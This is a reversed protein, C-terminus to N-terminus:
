FCWSVITYREGQTVPAVSHVIDARFAVLLGREGVLPFGLSDARSGDMLGFFTLRGGGFSDLEPEASEGNLFIVMSVRRQAVYDPGETERDAHPQFYDGVRYRLFQPAQCGNLPVKFHNGITPLLKLLRAHVLSKTKESVQASVSKRYAQDIADSTEDAVTSPREPVSAIERRLKDCFESDFFNRRAFLGFQVFFDATLVRRGGEADKGGAKRGPQRPWASAGAGRLCIRVWHSALRSDRSCLVVTQSPMWYLPNRGFSVIAVAQPLVSRPCVDVRRSAMDSSEGPCAGCLSTRYAPRARKTAEATVLANEPPTSDPIGLQTHSLSDQPM